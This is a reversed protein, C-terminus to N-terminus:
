KLERLWGYLEHQYTRSYMQNLNSNHRIYTHYEGKTHVCTLMNVDTPTQNYFHNIVDTCFTYTPKNYKIGEFSMYQQRINNMTIGLEDLTNFHVTIYRNAEARGFTDYTPYTIDSIKIENQPQSEKNQFRIFLTHKGELKGKWVSVSVEDYTLLEALTYDTTTKTQPKASIPRGLIISGGILSLIFEKRKM